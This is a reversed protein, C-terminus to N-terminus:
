APVKAWRPMRGAYAEKLTAANIGLEAAILARSEGADLRRFAETMQADTYKSLHHAEGRLRTGHSLQDVMNGKRTDIRLNSARNNDRSGDIHCVDMGAPDGVFAAAVLRHVYQTSSKNGANLHVTMYGNKSKAALLYRGARAGKARGVRMVRALDSVHYDPFGLVERWQEM